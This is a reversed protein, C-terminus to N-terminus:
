NHETQEIRDILISASAGMDVLAILGVGEVKIKITPLILRRKEETNTALYGIQAATRM